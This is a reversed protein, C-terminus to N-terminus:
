SILSQTLLSPPPSSSSPLLSPPPSSSSPLMIEQGSRLVITSSTSLPRTPPPHVVSTLATQTHLSMATDTLDEGPSNMQLTRILKTEDDSNSLIIFPILVGAHPTISPFHTTM